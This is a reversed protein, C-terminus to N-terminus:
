WFRWKSALKQAGREIDKEWREAAREISAELRAAERELKEELQQAEREMKEVWREAEREAAEIKRERQLEMRETEREAAEIERERQLEMREIEREAAEIEREIQREMREAEREAAEVRTETEVSLKAMAASDGIEYAQAYYARNDIERQALSYLHQSGAGAFFQKDVEAAAFGVVCVSAMGVGVMIGAVSLLGIVGRTIKQIM